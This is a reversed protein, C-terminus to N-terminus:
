LKKTARLVLIVCLLTVINNYVLYMTNTFFIYNKCVSIQWVLKYHVSLTLLICKCDCLGRNIANKIKLWGDLLYIM